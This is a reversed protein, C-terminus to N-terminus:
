SEVMEDRKKMGAATDNLVINIPHNSDFRERGEDISGVRKHLEEPDEENGDINGNALEKRYLTADGVPHWHVLGPQGLPKQLPGDWQKIMQTATRMPQHSERLFALMIDMTTDLVEDSDCALGTWRNIM